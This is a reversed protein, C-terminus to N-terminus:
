KVDGLDLLLNPSIAYYNEGLVIICINQQYINRCHWDAIFSYCMFRVFVLM